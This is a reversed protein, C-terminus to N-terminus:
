KWVPSFKNRGALFNEEERMGFFKRGYATFNEDTHFKLKLRIFSCNWGYSVKTEDTHFEIEM